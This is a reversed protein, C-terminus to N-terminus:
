REHEGAFSPIQGESVSWGGDVSLVQGTIFRSGDGLFFLVAEDLDAPLGIRGGDPHAVDGVVFRTLDGLRPRALEASEADRGVVVLSAGAEKCAIAASLGMGSTGGVILISKNLSKPPM